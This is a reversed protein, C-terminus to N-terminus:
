GLTTEGIARLISALWVLDYEVPEDDKQMVKRLDAWDDSLRGLDPNEPKQYPDYRATSPINWYYDMPLDIKTGYIAELHKIEIDFIAKLDDISIEM